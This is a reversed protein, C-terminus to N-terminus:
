SEEAEEQKLACGYNSCASCRADSIRMDVPAPTNKNLMFTGLFLVVMVTVFVVAPIM